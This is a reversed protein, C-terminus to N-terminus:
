KQFSPKNIKLTADFAIGASQGEQAMKEGAQNFELSVLDPFDKFLILQRSLADMNAAVGNIEISGTGDGSEKGSFKELRVEPIVYSSLRVLLSDWYAHDDIAKDLLNLRTQFDFIEAFEAGNIKSQEQAIQDAASKGQTEYRSKFFMVTFLSAFVVVLIVVSFVLASKGTISKKETTEASSLNINTVM